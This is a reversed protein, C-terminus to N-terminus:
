KIKGEFIIKVEPHGWIFKPNISWWEPFYEEYIWAVYEYCYMKKGAKEGKRGIWVGFLQLILQHFLLGSFDYGTRGLKSNARVAIQRELMDTEVEAIRVHKGKLRSKAEIPIVGKFVAENIFPVEWNEVVIGVHNYKIDAFLRILASLWTAPNYWKLPTYFGVIYGTKLDEIKM